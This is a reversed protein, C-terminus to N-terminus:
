KRADVVRQVLVGTAQSSRHPWRGEGDETYHILLRGNDLWRVDTGSGIARGQMGTLM